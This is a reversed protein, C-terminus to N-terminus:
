EEDGAFTSYSQDSSISVHRHENALSVLDLENMVFKRFQKKPGFMKRREALTISGPAQRLANDIGYEVGLFFIQEASMDDFSSIDPMALFSQKVRKPTPHLPDPSSSAHEEFNRKAHLTPHLPDPSSSAYEESIAPAPPPTRKQSSLGQLIEAADISEHAANIDAAIRHKLKGPSLIYAEGGAGDRAEDLGNQLVARIAEVRAANKVGPFQKSLKKISAELSIILREYTLKTPAM